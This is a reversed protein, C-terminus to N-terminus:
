RKAGRRWQIIVDTHRITYRQRTTSPNKALFEIPYSEHVCRYCPGIFQNTVWISYDYVVQKIVM